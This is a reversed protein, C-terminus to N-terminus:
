LHSHRGGEPLIWGLSSMSLQMTLISDLLKNVPSPTLLGQGRFYALALVAHTSGIHQIITAM